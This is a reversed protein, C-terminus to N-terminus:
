FTCIKYNALGFSKSGNNEEEYGQRKQQQQKQPPNKLLDIIWMSLIELFCLHFNPMKISMRIGFERQSSHLDEKLHRQLTQSLSLTVTSKCSSLM